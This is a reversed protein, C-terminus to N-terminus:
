LATGCAAGIQSAVKEIGNVNFSLTRAADDRGTVQVVLTQHGKLDRIM